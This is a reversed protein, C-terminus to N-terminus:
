KITTLNWNEPLYSRILVQFEGKGGLCCLTSKYLIIWNQKLNIGAWNQLLISMLRFGRFTFSTGKEVSDIGSHAATNGSWTLIAHLNQWVSSLNNRSAQLQQEAM